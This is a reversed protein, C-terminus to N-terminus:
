ASELRQTARKLYETIKNRVSQVAIEIARGQPDKTAFYPQLATVLYHALSTSLLARKGSVGKLSFQVALQDNMVMRMLTM